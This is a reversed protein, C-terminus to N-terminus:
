MCGVWAHQRKCCALVVCVSASPTVAALNERGGCDNTEKKGCLERFPPQVEASRLVFVVRMSVTGGETSLDDVSSRVRGVNQIVM